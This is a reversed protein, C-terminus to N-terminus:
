KQGKSLLKVQKTKPDRILIRGNALKKEHRRNKNSWTFGSARIAAADAAPLKPENPNETGDRHTGAPNKNVGRKGKLARLAENREGILKNSHTIAYAERIQERLTLSKPFTRNGWKAVILEAEKESGALEKAIELARDQQREKRDAALAADLDAQTLPKERDTGGERKKKREKFSDEAKAPDPEGAKREKELEADIDLEDEDTSSSSDSEDDDESDEDNADEDSDEESDEDSKEEKSKDDDESDEDDAKTDDDTEVDEVDQVKEEEAETGRNKKTM